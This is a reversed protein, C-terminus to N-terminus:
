ETTQKTAIDIFYNIKNKTVDYTKGGCLLETVDMTVSLDNSNLPKYAMSETMATVTYEKKNVTVTFQFDTPRMTLYSMPMLITINDVPATFTTSSATSLAENLESEDAFINKLIPRLPLEKITFDSAITIFVKHPINEVVVNGTYDGKMDNYVEQASTENIETKSDSCSMCCYLLM